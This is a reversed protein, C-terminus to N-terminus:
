IIVVEVKNNERVMDYDEYMKEESNLQTTTTTSSGKKSLNSKRVKRGVLSWIGQDNEENTENHKTVHGRQDHMIEAVPKEDSKEDQDSKGVRKKTGDNNKKM